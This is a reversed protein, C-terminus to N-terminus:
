RSLLLVSHFSTRLLHSYRATARVLVKRVLCSGSRRSTMPVGDVGKDEKEREASGSSASLATRLVEEGEVEM